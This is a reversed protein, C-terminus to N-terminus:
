RAVKQQQLTGLVKMSQQLLLERVDRIGIREDAAIPSYSVTDYCRILAHHADELLQDTREDSVGSQLKLILQVLRGAPDDRQSWVSLDIDPHTDNVVREIECKVDRNELSLDNTLSSILPDLRGCLPTSGILYLRLLLRGCASDYDTVEALRTRVRETTHFEFEEETGVGTLNVSLCDYRVGSLPLQNARIERPGDIELLWPGHVGTEGPHMAQPTGPYLIPSLGASHELTPCHVHGLLWFHVGTGRLEDQTVPAYRSNVAGLDAHLIGITPLRPDVSLDYNALPSTPFHMSPFSWGHVILVPKGDKTLESQEWCGERGLLRFHESDISDALRHLVDYDHNGSVAFVPIGKKGLRCLGQELRGRAEFFRNDHDVVDGSLAVADVGKDIAFAVIADWMKACSWRTADADSLKTPRRGIHIDGTVLLRISM